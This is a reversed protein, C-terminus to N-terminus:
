HISLPLRQLQEHYGQLPKTQAMEALAVTFIMPSCVAVAKVERWEVLALKVADIIHKQSQVAKVPQGASSTRVVVEDGLM